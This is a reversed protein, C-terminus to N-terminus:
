RSHSFKPCSRSGVDWFWVRSSHVVAHYCTFRFMETFLDSSVQSHFFIYTDQSDESINPYPMVMYSLNLHMNDGFLACKFLGSDLRRCLDSDVFALCDSSSRDYMISIDLMQGHLDAVAQCNLGFKHNCSCFFKKRSVAARESEIVTSKHIWILIGDICEACNTFGVSSAKQFGAAITM